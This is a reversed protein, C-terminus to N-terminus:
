GLICQGLSDECGSVVTYCFFKCNGADAKHSWYCQNVYKLIYKEQPAKPLSYHPKAVQCFLQLVRGPLGQHSRYYCFLNSLSFFLLLYTLFSTSLFRNLLLLNQLAQTIFQSIHILSLYPLYLFLHFSSIIISCRSHALCEAAICTGYKKCKFIRCHLYKLEM